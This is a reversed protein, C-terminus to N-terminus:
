LPAYVQKLFDCLRRTCLELRFDSEIRARAKRSIKQSLAPNQALSEIAEALLRPEGQPLLRGTEGDVIASSIAGVDSAVVPRGSSMAELVVNPLGDRDGARNVISPVVVIHTQRYEDPLESHTLGGTLSIKGSLGAAAIEEELRAQEPGEGIIKLHFPLSLGALARILVGFGKKEVLRGVALLRLPESWVLPSARFRKTDVGHPIQSVKGGLRSLEQAVDHNCAIICAAKRARDALQSPPVKRADLAHTSFGYPVGLHGAALAAVEAPTHAFYGHFGSVAQGELAELVFNAQASPTGPPLPKVRKLMKLADPHPAAGDGPKTAFIGALLDAQDLAILEQLAFTESRRPFGSVIMAIKCKPM